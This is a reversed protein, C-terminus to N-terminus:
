PVVGAKRLEVRAPENAPDLALAMRLWRIGEAREGNRLFLMGGEYRLAADDPRKMVEGRVRDLRRLEDDIQKVKAEFDAADPQGLVRLCQALAHNVRRDHPAAALARRLRKEAEAPRDQELEFLGGELQVEADAPFEELLPGLVRGAEAPQGLRRQCRALGLRVERREPHRAALWTYQELAEAPTGTILLTDGLRLRATEDNPHSAVALRYDAVADAFYLLREWVYGRSLRAQLDDPRRDLYVTLGDLAQGLRYTDLDYQILVELIALALEDGQRARARLSPSPPTRRRQVDILEFEVAIAEAPGGGDRCRKLHETAEYHEGARRAARAALLRARPDRPRDELYRGLLERARQYEHAELAATGDGLLRDTARKREVVVTVGIGLAVLGLALLVRGPHRRVWRIM